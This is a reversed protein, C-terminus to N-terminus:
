GCRYVIPSFALATHSEILEKLSGQNGKVTMLYDAQKEDVIYKATDMQTHIADLTVLSGKIDLSELLPKVAKIENSKPDVKTQAITIASGHLLASILMPANASSEKAGRLTKGDIAVAARGRCGGLGAFWESLEHEVAEYDLKALFRRIATEKPPKGGVVGLRFLEDQSRAAAWDAIARLSKAGSLCAGVCIALLSYAPYRRGRAQRPDKVRMLIDLLGGDGKLPVANIDM